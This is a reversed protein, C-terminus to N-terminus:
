WNVSDIYVTTSTDAVIKVGIGNLPLVADAPITTTVTNWANKTLTGVDHWTDSWIYSGSMLYPDVAIVGSSPIWVKM